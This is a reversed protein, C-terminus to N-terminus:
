YLSVGLTLGKHVGTLFVKANANIFAEQIGYKLKDLFALGKEEEEKTVTTAIETGELTKRAKCEAQIAQSSLLLTEPTDNNDIAICLEGTVTVQEPLVCAETLKGPLFYKITSKIKEALLAPLLNGLADKKTLEAPLILAEARIPEEISCNIEAFPSKHELVTCEEYLLVGFADTNTKIVGEDVTFKKCTVSQNLSPVLLTGSGEQEAGVTPLLITGPAKKGVLFGPTVAQASAALAMASLAAVALLGLLRLGHKRHNM